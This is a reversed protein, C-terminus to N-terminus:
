VGASDDCRCVEADLQVGWQNALSAQNWWGQMLRLATTKGAGNPGQLHCAIM